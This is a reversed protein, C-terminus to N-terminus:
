YYRANLYYLGTESDYRYGRYRYPNQVGVTDKLTGTISILKGWTDYTYSVVKNGNADMLDTIDGQINRVYFYETGNLNMSILKDAADYTYYIEDTGNTEYTVVKLASRM